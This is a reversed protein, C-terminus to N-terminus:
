CEIAGDPEPTIHTLGHDIFMNIEARHRAVTTTQTRNDTGTHQSFVLTDPAEDPYGVLIASIKMVGTERSIRASASSAGYAAMDRFGTDSAPVQM